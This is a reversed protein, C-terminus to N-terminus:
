GESTENSPGDEEGRVGENSTEGVEGDVNDGDENERMGEEGENDDGWDLDGLIKEEYSM